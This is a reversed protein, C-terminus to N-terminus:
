LLQGAAALVTLPWRSTKMLSIHWGTLYTTKTKKQMCHTGVQATDFSELGLACVTPSLVEIENCYQSSDYAHSIINFHMHSYGTICLCRQSCNHMWCLLGTTNESRIASKRSIGTMLDDIATAGRASKLQYNLVVTEERSRSWSVIELTINIRYLHKLLWNSLRVARCM